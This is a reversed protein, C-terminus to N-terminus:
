DFAVEDLHNNFSERVLCDHVNGFAERLQQLLSGVVCVNCRSPFPTPYKESGEYDQSCTSDKAKPLIDLYKNTQEYLCGPGNACHGRKNDKGHDHHSTYQACTEDAHECEQTNCGSIRFLSLRPNLHPRLIKLGYCQSKALGVVSVCIPRRLVSHEQKNNESEEPHVANVDRHKHAYYRERHCVPIKVSVLLAIWHAEIAALVSPIRTSRNYYRKELNEAIM